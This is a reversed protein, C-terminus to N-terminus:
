QRGRNIFALDDAVHGLNAPSHRLSEGFAQKLKEVKSKDKLSGILRQLIQDEIKVSVDTLESMLEECTEKREKQGDDIELVEGLRGYILSCAMGTQLYESRLSLENIAEIQHPLIRSKMEQATSRWVKTQERRRQNDLKEKEDISDLGLKLERFRANIENSKISAERSLRELQDIQNESFEAHGFQEADNAIRRILMASEFAQVLKSEDSEPVVELMGEPGFKLQSVSEIVSYDDGNVYRDYEEKNSAIFLQFFLVEFDTNPQYRLNGLRKELRELQKRSLIDSLKEIAGRRLNEVKEKVESGLKLGLSKITGKEGEHLKVPLASSRWTLFNRIGSQRAWYRMAVQSLREKQHPLIVRDIEDDVQRAWNELQSRKEETLESLNQIQITWQEREKLVKDLVNKLKEVQGDSLEVEKRALESDLFDIQQLAGPQYREQVKSRTSGGDYNITYHIRDRYHWQAESQQAFGFQELQILFLLLSLIPISFLPRSNTNTVDRERLLNTHNAEAPLKFETM